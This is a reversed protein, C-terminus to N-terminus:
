TSDNSSTQQRYERLARDLTELDSFGLQAIVQGLPLHTEQEETM